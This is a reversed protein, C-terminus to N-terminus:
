FRLRQWFVDLLIDIHDFVSLFLFFDFDAKTSQWVILQKGDYISNSLNMRTLKRCFYVQLFLFEWFGNMLMIM